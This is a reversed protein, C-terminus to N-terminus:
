ETKKDKDPNDENKSYPSVIAWKDDEKLNTYIRYTGGESVLKEALEFNRNACSEEIGLEREFGENIIQMVSKMNIEGVNYM